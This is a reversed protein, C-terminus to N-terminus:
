VLQIFLYKYCSLKMGTPEFSIVYLWDRQGISKIIDQVIESVTLKECNVRSASGFLM